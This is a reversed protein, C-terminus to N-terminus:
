KMEILKRKPKEKTKQNKFNMINEPRTELKMNCTNIFALLRIPTSLFSTFFLSGLNQSISYITHIHSYFQRFNSNFAYKTFSYHASLSHLYNENKVYRSIVNSIEVNIRSHM